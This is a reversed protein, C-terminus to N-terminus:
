DLASSAEEISVSEPRRLLEIFQDLKTGHPSSQGLARISTM